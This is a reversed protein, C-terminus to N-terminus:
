KFKELDMLGRNVFKNNKNLLENMIKEAVEYCKKFEEDTIEKNNHAAILEGEDDLHIFDSVSSAKKTIFLVDLFMDEYYVEGDKFFTNSIVDFYYLLINDEDDIFVRVNYLEDIPSYELITYNKDALAVKRGNIFIECRKSTEDIHKYTIYANLSNDKITKITSKTTERMYIENLRKLKRM